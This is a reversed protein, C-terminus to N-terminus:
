VGFILLLIGAVTAGAMLGIFTELRFLIRLYSRMPSTHCVYVSWSLGWNM